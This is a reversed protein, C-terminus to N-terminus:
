HGFHIPKLHYYPMKRPPQWVPPLLSRQVSWDPRAARKSASVRQASVMGQGLRWLCFNECMDVEMGGAGAANVAASTADEVDHHTIRKPLLSASGGSLELSEGTAPGGRGGPRWWPVPLVLEERWRRKAVGLVVHAM